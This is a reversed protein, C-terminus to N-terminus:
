STRGFRSLSAKLLPHVLPMKKVVSNVADAISYRLPKPGPAQAIREVERLKSTDHLYALTPALMAFPHMSAPLPRPLSSLIRSVLGVHREPDVGTVMSGPRKRYHFHIENTVLFRRGSHVLRLYLEWDEYSTLTEDYSFEDFLSRRMLSTACSMRNAVLGFSPADGLFLAYDCFRREALSADDLFYGASPVVVDFERREELAGVAIELFRPSICDDADLPLVYEGRAHRIGINRAAPL